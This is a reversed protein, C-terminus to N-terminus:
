AAKLNIFMGAIERADDNNVRYAVKVAKITKSISIKKAMIRNQKLVREPPFKLFIPNSFASRKFFRRTM